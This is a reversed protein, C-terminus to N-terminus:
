SAIKDIFEYGLNKAASYIKEFSILNEDYELEIKSNLYDVEVEKVGDLTDLESEILAKCSKCHIGKVQYTKKIM